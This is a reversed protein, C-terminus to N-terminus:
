KGLLIANIQKPLTLAIKKYAKDMHALDYYGADWAVDSLSYDPRSEIINLSNQFRVINCVTKPPVGIFELFLKEIYRTSYGSKESLSSITLNGGTNFVSLVAYRILLPVSDELNALPLLKKECFAVRKEFTDAELMCSNWEVFDRSINECETHTGFLETAPLKCIPYQEGTVFRIGFVSTREPYKNNIVSLFGGAIFSSLGRGNYIFIIDTCADPVIHISESEYDVIDYQYYEWVHGFLPHKEPILVRRFFHTHEVSPQIPHYDNNISQM